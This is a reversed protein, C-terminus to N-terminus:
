GHVIITWISYVDSVLPAIIADTNYIPRGKQNSATAFSATGEKRPSKKM